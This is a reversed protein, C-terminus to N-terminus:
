LLIEKRWYNGLSTSKTIVLVLNLNTIM